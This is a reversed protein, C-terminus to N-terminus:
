HATESLRGGTRDHELVWISPNGRDWKEREEPRLRKVKKVHSWCALM